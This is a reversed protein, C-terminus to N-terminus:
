ALRKKKDNRKAKGKGKGKGNEGGEKKTKQIQCGVLLFLIEVPV